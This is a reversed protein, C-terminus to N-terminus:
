SPLKYDIHDDFEALYVAYPFTSVRYLYMHFHLHETCAVVIYM